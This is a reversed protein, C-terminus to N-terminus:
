RKNDTLFFAMYLPYSDIADQSGVNKMSLRIGKAVKYKTLLSNLSKSYVNDASKVEVATVLRNYRIIFDV